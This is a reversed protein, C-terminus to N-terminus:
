TDMWTQVGAMAAEDTEPKKKAHVANHLSIADRKTSPHQSVAGLSEDESRAFAWALAEVQDDLHMDLLASPHGMMM